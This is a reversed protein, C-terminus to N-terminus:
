FGEFLNSGVTEEVPKFCPDKSLWTDNDTYVVHLFKYRNSLVSEFDERALHNRDLEKIYDRYKVTDYTNIKASNNNSRKAVFEDLFGIWGEAVQDDLQKVYLLAGTAYHAGPTFNYQQKILEGANTLSTKHYFKSDFHSLINM